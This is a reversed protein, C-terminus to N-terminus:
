DEVGGVARVASQHTGHGGLQPVGPRALSRPAAHRRFIDGGFEAGKDLIALKRARRGSAYRACDTVSTNMEGIESQLAFRTVTSSRKHAPLLIKRCKRPRFGGISLAALSLSFASADFAVSSFHVIKYLLFSTVCVSGLQSGRGDHTTSAPNKSSGVVSANSSTPARAFFFASLTTWM